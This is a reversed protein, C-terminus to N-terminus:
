AWVRNMSNTRMLVVIINLHISLMAVAAIRRRNRREGNPRVRGSVPFFGVGGAQGRDGLGQALFLRRNM